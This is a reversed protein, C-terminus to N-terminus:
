HRRRYYKAGFDVSALNSRRQPYNLGGRLDVVSMVLKIAAQTVTAAVLAWYGYEMAGHLHRDSLRCALFYHRNGRHGHVADAPEVTCHTSGGFQGLLFTISLVLTIGVLRPERYFWAVAPAMRGSAAYSAGGVAVNVWLLNSVQAHTIKQRQVTATSLGADQFIRLFGMVTTVMAVLGFEQPALLRALVM